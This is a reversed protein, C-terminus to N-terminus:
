KLNQIIGNQTDSIKKLLNSLTSMMKSMRDMAMQLRLSEMEGMENMSDMKDKLEKQLQGLEAKTVKAIPRTNKTTEIKPQNTTITKPKVQATIKLNSLSDYETRAIEKNEAERKKLLEIAERVAAKKKRNADMEKMMDKLDNQASKSAEMMLLIIMAEISMNDLSGLAAYQTALKRIEAEELKKENVNKATSKIWAVHKANIQPMAKNYFAEAEPPAKEQAILSISFLCLSLCLTIKKM